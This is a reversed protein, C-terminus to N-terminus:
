RARAVLEGTAMGVAAFTFNRKHPDSGIVIMPWMGKWEFGLLTM